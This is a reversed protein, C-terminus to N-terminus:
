EDTLEAGMTVIQDPRAIRLGFERAMPGLRKPDLLAARDIRLQRLEEELDNIRAMGNSIEFGLAVADNRENVVRLASASLGFIFAVSIVFFKM